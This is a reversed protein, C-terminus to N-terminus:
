RQIGRKRELLPQPSPSPRHGWLDPFAVTQFDAVSRTSGAKALYVRPDHFPIRTPHTQLVKEIAEVMERSSTFGPFPASTRPCSIGDIGWADEPLFAQLDLDLVDNGSSELGLGSPQAKQYPSTGPGTQSARPVPSRVRKVASLLSTQVADERDPGRSSQDENLGHQEPAADPPIHQRHAGQTDEAKLGGGPKPELEKPNFASFVIHGHEGEPPSYLHTGPSLGQARLEAFSRHVPSGRGLGFSGAEM